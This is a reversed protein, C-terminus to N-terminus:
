RLDDELDKRVTRVEEGSFRTSVMQHDSLKLRYVALQGQDEGDLRDLLMDILELSHTALVVQVRARTAQVIAGATQWLAAPHQFNHAEDILVLGGQRVLALEIALMLVSRAGDGLLAVPIFDKQMRAYLAPTEDDETLIELAQVDLIPQILRIVDQDLRKLRIKSWGKHLLMAQSLDLLRTSGRRLNGYIEQHEFSNDAWFTTTALPPGNETIDIKAVPGPERNDKEFSYEQLNLATKLVGQSDDSVIGIEASKEDDTFLWRYGFRLLRRRQVVRGVAEGPEASHGILLAELISSKGAGSPGVLVNLSTLDELSATRIGRFNTVSLARIM